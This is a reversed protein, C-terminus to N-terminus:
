RPEPAYVGEFDPAMEVEVIHGDVVVVQQLAGPNVALSWVHFDNHGALQPGSEPGGVDEWQAPFFEHVYGAATLAAQLRATFPINM